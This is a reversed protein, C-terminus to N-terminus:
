VKQFIIVKSLWEFSLVYYRWTWVLAPMNENNSLKLQLSLRFTVSHVTTLRRPATRNDFADPHAFRFCVTIQRQM